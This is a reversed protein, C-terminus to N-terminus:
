TGMYPSQDRLGGSARLGAGQEGCLARMTQVKIAARGFFSFVCYWFLRGADESTCWGTSPPAFLSHTMAAAIGSATSEGSAFVPRRSCLGYEMWDAGDAAEWARFLKMNMQWFVFIARLWM